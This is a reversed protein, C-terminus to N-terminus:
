CLGPGCNRSRRLKELDPRSLSFLATEASSFFAFSALLLVQLQLRLRVIVEIDDLPAIQPPLFEVVSSQYVNVMDFITPEMKIKM